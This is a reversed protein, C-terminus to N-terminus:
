LASFFGWSLAWIKLWAWRFGWLYSCVHLACLAITFILYVSFCVRDYPLTGSGSVLSWDSKCLSFGAEITTARFKFLVSINLNWVFSPRILIGTMSKDSCLETFKIVNKVFNPLVLSSTYNWKAISWLKSFSLGPMWSIFCKMRYDFSSYARYWKALYSTIFM